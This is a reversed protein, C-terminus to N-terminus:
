LKKLIEYEVNNKILKALHRKNARSFVLTYLIKNELLVNRRSWFFRYKVGNTHENLHYIVKGKGKATPDKKWLVLTNKWDPALGRVRDTKENIFIKQKKGLIKVSGLREPLKITHGEFIKNALFEMFGYTIKLYDEQSYPDESQQKYPKYTDRIVYGHKNM